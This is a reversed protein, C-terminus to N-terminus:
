RDIEGIGIDIAIAPNHQLLVHQMDHARDKQPTSRGILSDTHLIMTVPQRAKVQRQQEVIVERIQEFHAAFPTRAPADPEAFDKTRGVDRELIVPKIAFRAASRQVEVRSRRPKRDIGHSIMEVQRRLLDARQKHRCGAVLRAVNLGAGNKRPNSACRRSIRREVAPAALM